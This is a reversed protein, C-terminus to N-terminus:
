PTEPPAALGAVAIGAVHDELADLTEPAFPDAGSLHHAARRVLALYVPQSVLSLALLLPDGARIEGREQGEVMLGRLLGAVRTLMELVPAPPLKGAAIEQLLLHPLDPNAALAQIYTRVVRDVRVLVPEEGAVARAIRDALPGLVGDLVARYLGEKSGFHYTVAGLNAGAEGTISRVSTGDYGGHAFLKRGAALLAARTDAANPDPDRDPDVDPAPLPRKTPDNM